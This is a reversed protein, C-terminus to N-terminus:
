RKKRSSALHNFKLRSFVFLYLIELVGFTSVILILIFWVPQNLKAAKWMALGKWILSWVILIIMAWIPIGLQLSLDSLTM